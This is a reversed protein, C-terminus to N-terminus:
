PPPPRPPQKPKRLGAVVLGSVHRGRAVTARVVESRTAWRLNDARCNTPDGDRALVVHKPTPPEGHFTECVLRALRFAKKGWSRTLTIEVRTSRKGRVVRPTRPMKTTLDRVNGLNSVEIPLVGLAQRWQEPEPTPASLNTDPM